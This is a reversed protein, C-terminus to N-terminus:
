GSIDDQPDFWKHTLVVSEIVNGDATNDWEGAEFDHPWAKHLTWRRLETGDRDRQVIDIDKKYTDDVAGTNAAINSVQKFWKWLDLDKTAGRDLTVDATKYRGPSTEAALAGGEWQEIVAVSAKLPGAKQFGAYTVGAIEVTFAFKKFYSRPKGIISM